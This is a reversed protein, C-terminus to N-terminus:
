GYKEQWEEYSLSEEIVSKGETNRMVREDYNTIGEIYISAVTRCNPHFPPYNIGVQSEDLNFIKRDMRQCILSTRNDLTADIIYQEAFTNKMSELSAQNNYYASETRILREANSSAVGYRGVVDAVMEKSSKGIALAQAIKTNIESNLKTRHTGWVAKSFVNNTSGKSLVSEMTKTDLKSFPYYYTNRNQIDYITRYYAQSYVREFGDDLLKLQKTYMLDQEAKIQYLLSELRTIRNKAYLLDVEKHFSKNDTLKLEDLYDQMDIKYSKLEKTNLLKQAESFPVKNEIAYERYFEDIKAKTEKESKRLLKDIKKQTSLYIKNTDSEVKLARKQFYNLEDSM